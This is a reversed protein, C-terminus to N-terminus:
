HPDVKLEVVTKAHAPKRSFLGQSHKATICQICSVAEKSANAHLYKSIATFQHLLPFRSVSFSFIRKKNLTKTKIKLFFVICLQFYTSIRNYIVPKVFGSLELSSLNQIKINAHSDANSFYPVQSFHSSNGIQLM